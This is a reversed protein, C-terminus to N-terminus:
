VSVRDRLMPKGESDEGIMIKEMGIYIAHQLECERCVLYPGQQRWVHKGPPFYQINNFLKTEPQLDEEVVESERNNHLGPM